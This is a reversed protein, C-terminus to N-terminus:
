KPDGPPAVSPIREDPDPLKVGTKTYLTKQVLEYLFDAFWGVIAAYMVREETTQIDGFLLPSKIFTGILFGLLVPLAYLGLQNWYLAARSRYMSEPDMEKAVPKLIPFAIEVSRKIFFNGIVVMIAIALTGKSLLQAVLDDM